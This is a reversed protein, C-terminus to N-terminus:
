EKLHKYLLAKLQENELHGLRPNIVKGDKGVLVHHPIGSIKFTGSLIKWEDDSVRYHEGKINPIMNDYTAKPSTPNTIYVFAVKENAMEDKLLKIREIGSRCPGCWTAWFDIYVVKGKYKAMIADFLKDATTQPVVNVVAGKLKKNAEVKTKAENNKLELYNAIFPTTINKQYEKLKDDKIPTIESVIPRCYNQSAMVDSAFGLQIGLVKKLNEEREARSYEQYVEVLLQHHDLEFQNLQNKHKEYFLNHRTVLPNDERAKLASLLIKEDDNFEIDQRVLYKEIIAYTVTTDKKEKYIPYIKDNYKQQFKTEQEGYKFQLENMFNKFEPTDIEKLQDSLMKDEPTLKNGKKEWANMYDSTWFGKPKGRLIDLYMLRNTFTSFDSAIVAIPNNVLDNTLFTYYSTDLHAPKFSIDRQEQPINNKKRWAAEANLGFELISTSYGYVIKKEKVQVAKSSIYHIKAYYLLAELDKHQLDLCWSKYQEPTFDPITEIMKNYDLSKIKNLEFLDNNIRGCDGMFLFPNAKNGIDILQFTTKGPVIFITEFSFPNRVFIEQPNYHPFKVKFTGDDAIYYIYTLQLGTLIDNVYVTGTRHPFRPNFGKIYGCYTVTDVKFFPLKFIEKDEPIVSPTPRKSYKILKNPTEGIFSTSDDETKLYIELKESGSKLSIKGLGDAEKYKLYKWVQSKYIAVSDFLSIEWQANDSRFWNGTIGEPVISKVMESKLQIDYIFWSGGENGEGFDLKSVSHAIKPFFLKYSVIGSNPVSFQKGVQIGEAHKIFLKEKSGVPQIYTEKPVSIWKGPTYNIQFCLVTATDSITIREINFNSVTSMGVKPSEIKKQSYAFFSMIFGLTSLLITRM